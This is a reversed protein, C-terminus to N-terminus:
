QFHIATGHGTPDTRRCYLFASFAAMPLPHSYQSMGTPMDVTCIPPFHSLPPPLRYWLRGTQAGATCFPPFCLQRLLHIISRCCPIDSRTDNGSFGAKLAARRSHSQGPNEATQSIKHSRNSMPVKIGYQEHTRRPPCPLTAKM